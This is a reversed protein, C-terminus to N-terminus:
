SVSYGLARLRRLASSLDTQADSVRTRARRDADADDREAVRAVAAWSAAGDTFARTIARHTPMEAPGVAIRGMANAAAGYAGGLQQASSARQARDEADRLRELRSRRRADLAAIVESLDAAYAPRAGVELARPGDLLLSAAVTECTVIETDTRLTGCSITAVGELTPVVYLQFDRRRGALNLSDYRLAQLDGLLVREPEGVGGRVARRLRASLLTPGEADTLGFTVRTAGNGPETIAAAEAEDLGPIPTVPPSVSWGDPPLVSLPGAVARDGGGSSLLGACFAVVALGVVAAALLAPGPRPETPEDGSDVFDTDRLAAVRDRAPESSALGGPAPPEVVDHEIAELHDTPGERLLALAADLTAVAGTATARKLRRDSFADNLGGAVLILTALDRRDSSVAVGTLGGHVAFDALHGHRSRDVLINAASLGGHALGQAHAADLAAAVSRLCTDVQRPNWIRDDLHDALTRSEILPAVVFLHPAHRGAALIPLIAPHPPQALRESDGRLREAFAASGSLQPDFVRLAVPTDGSRGSGRPSRRRRCARYVTSNRGRGLLGQVEFGAVVDGDTLQQHRGAGGDGGSM